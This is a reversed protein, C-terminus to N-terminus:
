FRMVISSNQKLRSLGLKKRWRWYFYQVHGNSWSLIGTATRLMLAGVAGRGLPATKLSFVVNSAQHRSTPTLFTEWNMRWHNQIFKITSLLIRRQQKKFDEPKDLSSRSRSRRQRRQHIRGKCQTWGDRHLISSVSWFGFKWLLVWLHSTFDIINFYLVSNGASSPSEASSWRLHSRHSLAHWGQKLSCRNYLYKTRHLLWWELNLSTSYNFDRM